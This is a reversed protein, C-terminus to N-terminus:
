ARWFGVVGKVEAIIPEAIAAARGAGDKLVRDIEAPDAMFRRMESTIPAMSAVALDALAPKSAGFGRGGFEKLVDADSVGALAAYISVLNKAEPRNELGEVATPLMEPDTTAKKIKKSISDADDSLNIRSLDSPDSKSMKKQGDKL